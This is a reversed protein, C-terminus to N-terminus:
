NKPHLIGLVTLIGILVLLFLVSVKVWQITVKKLWRNGIFAGVFASLVPFCLYTGYEDWHIERFTGSYVMLRSFDVLFAIMVGTAIFISKDSIVRILWASRMAGQHGTLGGFFGSILGGLWLNKFSDKHQRAFMSSFEYFAFFLMLFGVVIGGWEIQCVYNGFLNYQYIPKASSFFQLLNAGLIAAPITFIGFRFVINWDANRFVLSSKFINNCLHVVATFAVAQEVPFFFTFAPLLLTGLGFGSFFTLFSALLAVLCIVFLMM